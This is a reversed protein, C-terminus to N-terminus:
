FRWSLGGTVGNVTSGSAFSGQYWVFFSLRRNLLMSVGASVDLADEGYSGLDINFSSPGGPLTSTISQDNALFEHEWGVFAEPVVVIPGHEFRYNANVGIRSRLSNSDRSDVTLGYPGSETFGEQYLFLYQLSAEPTIRFKDVEFTWGTRVYALVDHGNFSGDSSSNLTQMERTTDFQHFGYTLSADVFWPMPSYSFYPGVWSM